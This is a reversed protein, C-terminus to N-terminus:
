TKFNKPYSPQESWVCSKWDLEVNSNCRIVHRRLRCELWQQLPPPQGLRWQCAHSTALTHSLDTLLRQSSVGNAASQRIPQALRGELVYPEWLALCFTQQCTNIHTGIVYFSALVQRHSNKPKLSAQVPQSPQMVNVPTSYPVNMQVQPQMNM